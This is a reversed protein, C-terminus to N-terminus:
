FKLRDESDIDFIFNRTVLKQGRNLYDLAIFGTNQNIMFVQWNTPIHDNIRNTAPSFRFNAKVVIEEDNTALTREIRQAIEHLRAVSEIHDLEQLVSLDWGLHLRALQAITLEKKNKVTDLKRKSIGKSLVYVIQQKTKPELQYLLYDGSQEDTQLEFRYHHSINIYRVLTDGYMQEHYSIHVNKGEMYNLEGLDSAMLSGWAANHAVGPYGQWNRMGIILKKNPLLYPHNNVLAYGQGFWTSDAMGEGVLACDTYNSFPSLKTSRHAENFRAQRKVPVAESLTSSAPEEILALDAHRLHEERGGIKRLSDEVKRRDRAAQDKQFQTERLGKHMSTKIDLSLKKIILCTRWLSDKKSRM